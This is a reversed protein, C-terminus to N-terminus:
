QIREAMSCGSYYVRCNSDEQNCKDIGVQAAEEITAASQMRYERDGLIMVACQNFYSLDVSCAEGGKSECETLAAKEARRKSTMGIVAGLSATIPDTAIAGWRDAWIVRPTATQPSYDPYMPSAPNDPPICGPAGQPIGPPCSQALASGSLVFMVIMLLSEIRM